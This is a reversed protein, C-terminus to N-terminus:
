RSRAPAATSSTPTPWWRWASSSTSCRTTSRPPRPSSASTRWARSVGRRHERRAARRGSGVRARDRRDDRAALPRQGDRAVRRAHVLVERHGAAGPRDPGRRQAYHTAEAFSLGSERPTSRRAQGPGRRRHRAQARQHGAPGLGRRPPQRHTARVRAREQDGQPRLVAHGLDGPVPDLRAADGRRAGPEPRQHPLVGGDPELGAVDASRLRRLESAM